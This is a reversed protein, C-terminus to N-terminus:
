EYSIVTASSVNGEDPDGDYNKIVQKLSYASTTATETNEEPVETYRYRWKSQLLIDDASVTPIQKAVYNTITTILGNYWKLNEKQEETEAGTISNDTVEMSEIGEQIFKSRLTDLGAQTLWYTNSGLIVAVLFELTKIRSRLENNITENITTVSTQLEEIETAALSVFENISTTLSLMENFSSKFTCNDLDIKFNGFDVLAAGERTENWIIIKDGASISTYQPLDKISAYVTQGYTTYAM